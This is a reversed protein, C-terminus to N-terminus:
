QSQKMFAEMVEIFHKLGQNAEGNGYKKCVEYFDKAFTERKIEDYFEDFLRRFLPTIYAKSTKLDALRRAFVDDYYEDKSGARFLRCCEMDAAMYDAGKLFAKYRSNEDEEMMVAKVAEALHKPLPKYLNEEIQSLEYEETATRFGEIRDKVPSPIDKTWAEAIDHFIGIFFMKTATTEDNPYNELWMLYACVATDLLHRLVPAGQNRIRTQWRDMYRLKILKRILKFVESEPKSFEKVGPIHYYGMLSSTLEQIKKLFEDEIKRENEFLEAMTVIKTAARYIQAEYSGIGECLFNAFSEDTKEAILKKTEKDNNEPDIQGIKCIKELTSEPIDFNMTIKQFGRYIAIKPFRSWQISKGQAEAHKGLLYAALCNAAQKNAEDVNHVNTLGTWRDLHGLRELMENIAKVIRMTLMM